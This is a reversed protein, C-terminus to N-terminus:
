TLLREDCMEAVLSAFDTSEVIVQQVRSMQQVFHALQDEANHLGAFFQEMPQILALPHYWNINQIGSQQPKNIVKWDANLAAIRQCFDLSFCRFTDSKRLLQHTRRDFDFVVAVHLRNGMDENFHHDSGDFIVGHFIGPFWGRASGNEIPRFEIGFRQEVKKSLDNIVTGFGSGLPWNNQPLTAMRFLSALQDDLAKAELYHQIAIPNIPAVPGLSESKLLAMFEKAYWIVDPEIHALQKKILSYVNNWCFACDPSQQHQYERETILVLRYDSFNEAAYNRYHELQQFHLDARVKHEFVLVGSEWKLVMDPYKNAFNEQTSVQYDPGHWTIEDELLGNIYTVLAGTIVESSRLLHAFAETIFNELPNTNERPRYKRLNVLLNNEM